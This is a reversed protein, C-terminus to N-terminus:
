KLIRECAYERYHQNIRSYNHKEGDSVKVSKGKKLPISFNIRAGGEPVNEAWILGHHAEIIARVIALGLGSGGTSSQRADDARYFREFVRALAEAPIGEGTDTVSILM